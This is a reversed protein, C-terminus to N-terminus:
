SWFYLICAGGAVFVSGTIFVISNYMKTRAIDTKIHEEVEDCVLDYEVVLIRTKTQGPCRISLRSVGCFEIQIETYNEIDWEKYNENIVEFITPMWLSEKSTYEKSIKIANNIESPTIPSGLTLIQTFHCSQFKPPHNSDKLGAKVLDRRKEKQSNQIYTPIDQMKPYRTTVLEYIM